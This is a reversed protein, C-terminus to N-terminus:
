WEIIEMQVSLLADLNEIQEQGKKLFGFEGRISTDVIIRENIEQARNRLIEEEEM